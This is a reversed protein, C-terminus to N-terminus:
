TEGETGKSQEPRHSGLHKMRRVAPDGSPEPQETKIRM